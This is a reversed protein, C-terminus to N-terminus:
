AVLVEGGAAVRKAEGIPLYRAFAHHLAQQDTLLHKVRESGTIALYRALLERLLAASPEDLTTPVIYRDNIKSENGPSMFLVGGTMGAGANYSVEGLVVVLGNTMYECCHLGTGEVVAKAGSNRVAFRDGALGYIFAAGGTAGYLACNGVIANKSPVFVSERPPIVAISGGSMGKGFSDNAEGELFLSIPDALFVGFGQGASGTCSLQIPQIIQHTVIEEAIKEGAGESGGGYANRGGEDKAGTSRQRGILELRRDHVRRAVAGALTAGVARDFSRVAASVEVATEGRLAADCERVIRTNLESADGSLLCVRVGSAYPRHDLLRELVIGRAKILELHRVDPELLDSRGTLEGLNSVGLVSLHQRIEEALLSLFFVIEEPSGKYKAKFKQDHTAIGTPCTNKECVRAMVCGEAVLLLKGFDFEDAGLMAAIIMDKGTQLGGDVRLTVFHRLNNELLARHAEALGLEWPLGAHKMSSLSAAGTGGDHGAIHIVDAGAKAVGVAITGINSGSVLKVNVPSNPKLQKLEYILEKLDEISYIDHLPPPSILDVNIPSHRARAIDSSVKPAMLQGGEGPKAGQAIKIQIEEGAILYEATVGFRGSAVQKISATIGSKFYYPNEGGEGSNSRGGIQRMAIFIDRQAEASIAGFSMAGSGFKSLINAADEVADLPLPAGVQRYTLLHRVSIPAAQDCQSLYEHYLAAVRENDERAAIIRHILRSRLNTMSHMEGESEKPHEKYLRIDKLTDLSEAGKIADVRAAIQEALQRFGIGGLPSHHRPFYEATLELSLGIPTFLESGEYSRVVSIGMKSMIKLLGQELARRLNTEREKVTLEALTRHADQAAIAFLLWPCVASAGFSVLAAIDHTSRADGADVVISAQLGLGEKTLALVVARLMLLTPVPPHEVNAEADSIVVVTAGNRVAEVARRAGDRLCQQLGADGAAIPFLAQIHEVRGLLVRTRCDASRLLALDVPSIIPSPLFVCPQPPILEKPEFINPKVGIYTSLDTVMSERLYDLPPNTVQAFDHHFLDFFSRDESSLLALRATDGMSGIAEKGDAIFSLIVRDYEEKSVAFLQKLVALDLMPEPHSDGPVIADLNILRPDFRADRNELARSPDEFRVEGSQLDVSVGSGAHLAGKLLILSNDVNFAGAESALFFHDATLSWRCPRFGNRDLRAGVTGGDGYALFAPGDWPEMARSWFRYYDSWETAPPVMIALIDDVRPISSRYKLSEVVENLTGSDSIGSWTILQEPALGLSRERSIAWVRNGAITNIEGNHAVLRFPQAKDWTTSTNTSFRRHFLAFRSQYRSDELDPYFKALMPAQVLAKYVITQTSLSTFFFSSGVGANKQLTRTKQRVLYLIREFAADTRSFHPRKLIAHLILPRTAMADPGLVELNIPVERYDLLDIGESAFTEAFITLARVREKLDQPAFIAAVAVSGPEVGLIGFPIDAMIGAGDGSIGDAACAGRHEVCALASLGWNLIDRSPEGHRSAVFGVGCASREQRPGFLGMEGKGLM